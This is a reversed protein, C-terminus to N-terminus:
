HLQQQTPKKSQVSLRGQMAIEVPMHDNHSLCRQAAKIQFGIKAPVLAKFPERCRIPSSSTSSRRTPVVDNTTNLTTALKCLAAFWFSHDKVFLGCSGEKRM